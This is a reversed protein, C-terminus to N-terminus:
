KKLFTPHRKREQFRTEKRDLLYADFSRKIDEVRVGLGTGDQIQTIGGQGSSVETLGAERRKYGDTNINAINQGTVALAQRYSQVGSKAIDFLSPVVIVKSTNKDFQRLLADAIGLDLNLALSRAREQDLMSGFNDEENSSFLEEALKSERAQKLMQNVFMSEFEEALAELNAKNKNKQFLTFGTDTKIDPLKIEM